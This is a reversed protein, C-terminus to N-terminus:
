AGFEAKLKEVEAVLDKQYNALKANVEEKSAASGSFYFKIKPETGSPRLSIKTGDELHYQIVNSSPLKYPSGEADAITDGPLFDLAKVVKVGAFETKPNARYHAMIKGIVEKGKLGQIEISKSSDSYYGYKELIENLYDSMNRGEKQLVACCEAILMTAVMADKDRAHTGVLFGYSEEGGCVYTYNKDAEFERIKQGIFKFGTLVNFVKLGFSEAIKDQLNTTVITKVVAGNAPLKGNNKMASLVYYEIIAGIHNGSVITFEGNKERVAIGMRDADPDTAIVIDANEKKALNIGRTLAEQEEPNPKIVTPFNGDAIMQEKVYLVNKLGLRDFVQPALTAGTGHLPTYVIKVNSGAVNNINQKFIEDLFANDVDKDIIEIRGDAVLDYFNESKVDNLSKIKNVEAIVNKDHPSVMQAGDSWYAKYGNYEKPNHSATVVVGTACGLYRIAFSLEPTPRLSSFLYTKIGNSAFITATEQAFEKSFNRSDCAVVAKPNEINQMKIYNALGQTAKSVNYRNMGNTGFRIIGRLGGTGFELDAGFRENLEAENGSNVLDQIERICDAGYPEKTWEDIKKQIDNNLAMPM